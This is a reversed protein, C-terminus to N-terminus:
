FHIAAYRYNTFFLSFSGFLLFVDLCNNKFIQFHAQLFHTGAIDKNRGSLMWYFIHYDREKGPQQYTVRSKELLDTLLNFVGEALNSVQLAISINM